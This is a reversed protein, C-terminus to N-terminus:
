ASSRTSGYSISPQRCARTRSGHEASHRLAPTVAGAQAPILDKLAQALGVTNKCPVTIHAVALMLQICLFLSSIKSCRAKAIELMGGRGANAMYDFAQALSM